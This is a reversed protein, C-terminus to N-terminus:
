GYSRASDPAGAPEASVVCRRGQVERGVPQLAWGAAHDPDARPALDHGDMAAQAPNGGASSKTFARRANPILMRQSGSAKRNSPTM